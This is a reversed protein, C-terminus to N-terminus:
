PSPLAEGAAPKRHWLAFDEASNKEHLRLEFEDPAGELLRRLSRPRAPQRTVVWQAGFADLAKQADGVGFSAGPCDALERHACYVGDDIVHSWTWFLEPSGVYLMAQDYAINYRYDPLFGYLISGAGWDDVFIMSGSPVQARLRNAFRSYFEAPALQVSAAFWMAPVVAFARALQVGAVAAVVKRVWPPAGIGARPWALAAVLAVSPLAYDLFKLTRSSLFLSLVTAALAARIGAGSGARERKRGVALAVIAALVTPAVAPGWLSLAPALAEGGSNPLRGDPGHGLAALSVAWAVPLFTARDPRVAMSLLWGAASALVAKLGARWAKPGRCLAGLGTFLPSLPSSLHIAGHIFAAGAAWPLRLAGAGVALSVLVLPASLYGPRAVHARYAFAASTVTPLLAYVAPRAQGMRAMVWALGGASLAAIAVGALRAGWVIGAATFPILFLHFGWWLDVGAKGLATFPLFPHGRLTFGSLWLQHAYQLHRYPDTDGLADNGISYAFAM